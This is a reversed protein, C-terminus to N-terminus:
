NGWCVGGPCFRSDRAGLLFPNAFLRHGPSPIVLDIEQGRFESARIVLNHNVPSRLSAFDSGGAGVDSLSMVNGSSDLLTSQFDLFTGDAFDMRLRSRWPTAADPVGESTITPLSHELDGFHITGDGQAVGYTVSRIVGDEPRYFSTTLKDRGDVSVWVSIWERTYDDGTAPSLLNGMM